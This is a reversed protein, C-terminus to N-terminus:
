LKQEYTVPVLYENLFYASQHNQWIKTNHKGIIDLLAQYDSALVYEGTDAEEM